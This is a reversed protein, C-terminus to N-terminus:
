RYSLKHCCERYRKAWIRNTEDALRAVPLELGSAMDSNLRLNELVECVVAIANDSLDDYQVRLPNLGQGIFWSEWCKEMSSLTAIQHSIASEDYVPELHASVRDLETGDPARHWLGSQSAKV